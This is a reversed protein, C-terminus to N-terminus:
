LCVNRLGVQLLNRDLNQLLMLRVAKDLRLAFTALAGFNLDSATESVTSITANSTCDLCNSRWCGTKVFVM